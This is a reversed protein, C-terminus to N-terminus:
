VVVLHACDVHDFGGVSGPGFLGSQEDFKGPCFGSNTFGDTYHAFDCLLVITPFELKCLIFFFLLIQPRRPLNTGRKPSRPPYNYSANNLTNANLFFPPSTQVVSPIVYTYLPSLTTATGIELNGSNISFDFFSNSFDPNCVVITECARSPFKRIDRESRALRLRSITDRIQNRALSCTIRCTPELHSVFLLPIPGNSPLCLAQSPLFM